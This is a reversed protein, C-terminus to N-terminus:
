EPRAAHPKPHRLDNGAQFTEFRLQMDPHSEEFQDPSVDGAFRSLEVDGTKKVWLVHHGASDDCQRILQRLHEKSPSNNLNM